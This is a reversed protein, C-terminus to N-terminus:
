MSPRCRLSSCQMQAQDSRQDMSGDDDNPLEVVRQEDDDDDAGHPRRARARGRVRQWLRNLRVIDDVSVAGPNELAFRKMRELQDREFPELLVALPDRYVVIASSSSPQADPGDSDSDADAADAPLLGGVPTELTDDAMSDAPSALTAGPGGRLLGGFDGRQVGMPMLGAAAATDFGASADGPWADAGPRADPEPTPPRTAPQCGRALTRKSPRVFYALSSLDPEVDMEDDREKRKGGLRSSASILRSGTPSSAFM